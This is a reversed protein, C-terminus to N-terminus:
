QFKDNYAEVVQKTADEIANDKQAIVNQGTACIIDWLGSPCYERDFYPFTRVDSYKDIYTQVMGLDASCNTLASPNGTAELMTKVVEPQALYALFQEAIEQKKTNNSIGFALCEGAILSVEDDESAAPLPMMGLNADPNIQLGMTIAINQYFLFATEGSALSAIDATYEGSVCDENFYGASVWADLLGSVESWTEGDFTGSKLDAAKSNNEDTIFYSPAVRDYFWGITFSNSGGIHIPNKGIAKVAECAEAFDDWTKIADVDIGAEEIIDVNYVIGTIDMDIPLAYINGDEGTVIGRIQSDINETVELENLPMLYESYRAVSWGHTDFVDPMDNGAMKTKMLEEYTDGPASFEITYGTEEEFAECAAKVADVQAGAGSVWVTLTQDKADAGSESTNACASLGLVMSSALAVAVFKKM